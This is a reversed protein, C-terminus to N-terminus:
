INHMLATQEINYTNHIVMNTSIDGGGRNEKVKLTVPIHSPDSSM